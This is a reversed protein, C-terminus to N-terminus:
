VKTSIPDPLTARRRELEALVASREIDTMDRWRTIERLTRYCGACYEKSLDLRCVAICPSEVM